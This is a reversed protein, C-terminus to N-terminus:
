CTSLLDQLPNDQPFFHDTFLFSPPRPPTQKLKMEPLISPPFRGQLDDQPFDFFKKLYTLRISFVLMHYKRQRPSKFTFITIIVM